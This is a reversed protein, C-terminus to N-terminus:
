LEGLSVTLDSILQEHKAHLWLQYERNRRLLIESLKRFLIVQTKAIQTEVTGGIDSYPASATDTSFAPDTVMNADPAYTEIQVSIVHEKGKFQEGRETPVTKTLQFQVVVAGQASIAFLCIVILTLRKM